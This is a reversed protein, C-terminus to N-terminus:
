IINKIAILGLGAGSNSPWTRKRGGLLQRYHWDVTLNKNRRGLSPISNKGTRQHSPPLPDSPTVSAKKAGRRTLRWNKNARKTSHWRSKNSHAKNHPRMRLIESKIGQRLFTPTGRKPPISSSPNMDERKNCKFTSIKIGFLWHLLHRCFSMYKITIKHHSSSATFLKGYAPWISFTKGSQM